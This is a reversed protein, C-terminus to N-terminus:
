PCANHSSATPWRVACKRCLYAENNETPHALGGSQAYTLQNSTIHSALMHQLCSQNTGLHETTSARQQRHLTSVLM